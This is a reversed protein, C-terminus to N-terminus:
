RGTRYKIQGRFEEVAPCGFLTEFVTAIHFNHSKRHSLLQLGTIRFRHAISARNCHDVIWFDFWANDKKTSQTPRHLFV